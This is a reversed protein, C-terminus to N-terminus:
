GSLFKRYAEPIERHKEVVAKQFEEMNAMIQSANRVQTDLLMAIEEPVLKGARTLNAVDKLNDRIIGVPHTIRMATETMYAILDEAQRLDTIDELTEVAGLINGQEDHLVAATFHLWTGNKGLHPFFDTAVYAGSILASKNFKGEYLRAVRDLSGDVLLDAMTPRKEKYFAQWQRDSGIMDAAPIGSYQELARNWYRVKHNSDIVFQPIPSNDVISQLLSKFMGSAPESAGPGQQVMPDDPPRRANNGTNQSKQVPIVVQTVSGQEHRGTRNGTHHM